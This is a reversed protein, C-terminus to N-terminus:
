SSCKPYQSIFRTSSCYCGNNIENNNYNTFQNYCKNLCHKDFFINCYNRNLSNTPFQCNRSNNSNYFKSRNNFNNHYNYYNPYTNSSNYSTLKCPRPRSYYSKFMNFNSYNSDCCNPIFHHHNNNFSKHYCNNFYKYNNIPQHVCNNFSGKSIKHKCQDYNFKKNPYQRSTFRNSDYCISHSNPSKNSCHYSCCNNFNNNSYYVSSPRYQFSSNCNCNNYNTCQKYNIKNYCTGLGHNDNTFLSYYM